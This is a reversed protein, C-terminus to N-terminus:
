LGPHAAPLELRVILGRRGNAATVRGHCRAVVQNVLALGLGSGATTTSFHPSFLDQLQRDPLGGATDEVELTVVEGARRVRVRVEGGGDGIADVSNKLLNGLARQLWQRDARIRRDEGAVSDAVLEIGRRGYITLGGLTDTVIEGLDFVEAQWRELAVLNSFANATDQLRDVQLAIERCADGALEDFKPHGARRAAELEQVWLRIPTL